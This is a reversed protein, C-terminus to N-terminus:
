SLGLEELTKDIVGANIMVTCAAKRYDAIYDVADQGTLGLATGFNNRIMEQYSEDEWAATFETTLKDVIEQPTGEKVAVAFFTKLPFYDAIEPYYETVCPINPYHPDRESDMVILIKIDGNRYFDNLTSAVGLGFDAFGGMVTTVATAANESTYVEFDVDMSKKWLAGLTPNIGVSGSAVKIVSGPNAKEAAVLEEWTNYPSNKNVFVFSSYDSTVIIPVFNNSSLNLLDHADYVTHTEACGFLTYGDAPKEYITQAAISTAGGTINDVIISKGLRAGVLSFLPRLESDTSGGAGAGLIAKINEKPYNASAAPSAAAESTQSTKPAENTGAPSNSTNASNCGGLTTILLCLALLCTIKKIM